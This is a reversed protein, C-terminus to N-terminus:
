GDTKEEDQPLKKLASMLNRNIFEDLGPPAGDVYHSCKQIERLTQIGREIGLPWTNKSIILHLLLGLEIKTGAGSVNWYLLKVSISDLYEKTVFGAYFKNKGERAAEAFIKNYDEVTKAETIWKIKEFIKNDPPKGRWQLLPTRPDLDDEAGRGQRWALM